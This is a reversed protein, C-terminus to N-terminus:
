GDFEGNLIMRATVANSKLGLSSCAFCTEEGGYKDGGCAPCSDLHELSGDLGVFMTSSPDYGAREILKEAARNLAGICRCLALAGLLAARERYTRLPTM